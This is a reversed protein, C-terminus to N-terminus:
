GLQRRRERQLKEFIPRNIGITTSTSGSAAVNEEIALRAPPLLGTESTVIL